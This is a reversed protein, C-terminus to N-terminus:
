RTRTLIIGSLKPCCIYAARDGMELEVSKTAKAFYAKITIETVGPEVELNVSDGPHLVGLPQQDILVNLDSSNVLAEYISFLRLAKRFGKSAKVRTIRIIPKRSEFEITSASKGGRIKAALGEYPSKAQDPEDM